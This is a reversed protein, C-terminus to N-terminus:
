LVFHGDRLVSKLAAVLMRPSPESANGIAPVVHDEFLRVLYGLLNTANKILSPQEPAAPAVLHGNGVGAVPSGLWQSSELLPAVSCCEAILHASNGPVM